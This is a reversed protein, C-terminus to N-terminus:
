GLHRNDGCEGFHRCLWLDGIQEKEFATAKDITFPRSLASNNYNNFVTEDMWVRIRVEPVTEVM